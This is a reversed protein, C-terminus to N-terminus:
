KNYSCYNVIDQAIFDLMKNDAVGFVGMADRYFEPNAIIEGSSSDRLTAQILVASSGAMSGAWFRAGGSVFKIEKIHPTIQLTRKTTKSFSNGQEIRKYKPFVSRMGNFLVEDIKKLAKKNAGSSAFKQSIGVAKMEVNEFESLRVKSPGPVGAPKTLNTACGSTFLLAIVPLLLMCIMRSIGQKRAMGTTM